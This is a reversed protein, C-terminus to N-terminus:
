INSKLKSLLYGDNFRDSSEIITISNLGEEFLDM